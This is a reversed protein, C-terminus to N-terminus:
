LQAKLSQARKIIEQPPYNRAFRDIDHLRNEEIYRASEIARNFFEKAQKKAGARAYVEGIQYELVYTIPFQDPSIFRNMADLIKVCKANDNKQEAHYSAYNLFTMRYSDMFRRHVEDYYVEKNHLNRFKFGYHPGTHAIDDAVPNLLSKDMINIEYRQDPGQKVPCVRQALGEIRLYEDMGMYSDAGQTFYVPREFKVVKMIDAVLKHQPGKYFVPIDEKEGPRPNGDGNFNFQMVGNALITSDNTFRKLIEQSVPIIISEAESLEPGIAENSTEDALLSNDSFTLPIKKAGWPARNKLEYMYWGTQGLSLNVVRVDRRVGAVDQMYWLPFTDNDGYTFVIADKDLSQLVNYSYDFPLFNGSRDHMKWGGMGMNVPVAIFCLAIAGGAIATSFNEDRKLITSIIGYTGIGIWMCWVFFSGVYFYDRERPQPNQQNQAYAALLGTLLFLTLYVLAMRPQKKFHFVMGFLGLLLPLAFFTIPFIDKYGSLYNFEKFELSNKNSSMTAPADQLDGVRGMFNWYFYRLYMHNLQYKFLYSMEGSMNKKMASFDPVSYQM